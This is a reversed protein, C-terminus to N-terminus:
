LRIKVKGSRSYYYLGGFVLRPVLRGKLIENTENQLLCVRGVGM